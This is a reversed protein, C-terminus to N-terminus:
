YVHSHSRQLKKTNLKTSSNSRIGSSPGFGTAPGRATKRRTTIMEQLKEMGEQLGEGTIACTPQLHWQRMNGLDKLSLLSELKDADLADPLDQMNALVLVPISNKKMGTGNMTSKCIKQLELKAEELRDEKTSDIV